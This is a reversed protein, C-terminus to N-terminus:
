WIDNITAYVTLAVGLIVALLAWSSWAPWYSRTTKADM